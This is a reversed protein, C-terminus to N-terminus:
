SRRVDLRDAWCQRQEELILGRIHAIARVSSEPYIQYNLTDDILRTKISHCAWCLSQLNERADTGGRRKPIIHDTCGWPSDFCMQCVPEDRRVQLSLAPWNDAYGKQKTTRQGARAQAKHNECFGREVLNPCFPQKCPRRPFM